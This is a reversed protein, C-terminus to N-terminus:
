LWLMRELGEGSVDSRRFYAMGFDCECLGWLRVTAVEEVDWM